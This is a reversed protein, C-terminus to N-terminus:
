SLISAVRYRESFIYPLNYPVLRAAFELQQEPSGIGLLSRNLRLDNLAPAPNRANTAASRNVTTVRSGDQFRHVADLDDTTNQLVLIRILMTGYNTPLNVIGQLTSLPSEKFGPEVLVDDSRRILYDGATNGNVAGIEAIVNGFADYVPYLYYRDDDFEPITLLVDQTSLDLVARSYVTDMNPKLIGNLDNLSSLTRQHTIQNVSANRLAGGAWNAFVALPYTYQSSTLLICGVQLQCSM